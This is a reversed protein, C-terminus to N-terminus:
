KRRILGWMSIACDIIIFTLNGVLPVEFFVAWINIKIKKKM